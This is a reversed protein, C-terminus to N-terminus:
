LLIFEFLNFACVWFAVGCKNRLIYLYRFLWLFSLSSFFRNFACPHCLSTSPPHISFSTFDFYSILSANSLHQYHATFHLTTLEMKHMQDDLFLFICYFRCYPTQPLKIAYSPWHKRLTLMNFEWAESSEKSKFARQSLFIICIM